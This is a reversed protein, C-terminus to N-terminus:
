DLSVDCPNLILTWSPSDTNILINSWYLSGFCSNSVTFCRTVVVMIIVAMVVGVVRIVLVMVVIAVKALVVLVVHLRPLELAM